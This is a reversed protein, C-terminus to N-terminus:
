AEDYFNLFEAESFIRVGEHNLVIFEDVDVSTTSESIDSTGSTIKLFDDAVSIKIQKRSNSFLDKVADLNVGNWQVAYAYNTTKYKKKM